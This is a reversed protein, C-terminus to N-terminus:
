GDVLVEQIARLLETASFPKYVVRDAAVSEQAFRALDPFATVVVVKTKRLHPAQRIFHLVDRGSIDPLGLDLLIVDPRSQQLINIAETGSLAGIVQDYQRRVILTFLNFMNEEDEIILILPM